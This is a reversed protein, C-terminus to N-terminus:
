VCFISSMKIELPPVQGGQGGKRAGRGVELYPMVM